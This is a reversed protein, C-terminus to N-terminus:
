ARLRGLVTMGGRSLLTDPSRKGQQREPLAWLGRRAAQAARQLRLLAPDSSYRLFVWAAGRRVMEANIHQGGVFVHAIVRRNRDTGTAHLVVRREFVLQSLIQRARDGFAQRREPADIEALRVRLRQRQDTLLTISDGDGVAVVRGRLETADASRVPLALAAVVLLVGALLARRTVLRRPARAASWSAM